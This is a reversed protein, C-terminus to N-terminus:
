NSMLNGLVKSIEKIDSTNLTVIGKVGTLGKGEQRYFSTTRSGVTVKINTGSKKFRLRSSSTAWEKSQNDAAVRMYDTSNKTDGDSIFGSNLILEIVNIKEQQSKNM